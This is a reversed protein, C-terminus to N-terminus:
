APLRSNIAEILRRKVKRPLSEGKNIWAMRKLKRMLDDGFLIPHFVKLPLAREDILQGDFPKNFTYTNDDYLATGFDNLDACQMGARSLITAVFSEDNPWNALRMPRRAYAKRQAHLLDIARDSLRVVPFLCRWVPQDRSAMTHTWYWWKEARRYHGAILDVADAAHFCQFFASIHPGSLRVDYEILWMFREDPYRQRALYFGYDGCRWGADAPCYLGLAQCASRTIAIKDFEGVDVMGKREDVVCCVKEGSESALRRAFAATQPSFAM